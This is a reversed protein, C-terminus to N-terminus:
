ALGAGYAVSLGLFVGRAVVRGIGAISLGSPLHGAGLASPAPDIRDVAIAKSRSDLLQTEVETARPECGPSTPSNEPSPGPVIAGAGAAGFALYLFRITVPLVFSGGQRKIVPSTLGERMHFLEMPSFPDGDEGLARARLLDELEPAFREDEPSEDGLVRLVVDQDTGPLRGASRAAPQLSRDRLVEIAREIRPQDVGPLPVLEVRSSPEGWDPLIMDPTPRWYSASFSDLARAYATRLRQLDTSHLIFRYYTIERDAEAKDALAEDFRIPKQGGYGALPRATLSAGVHALQAEYRASLAQMRLWSREEDKLTLYVLASRRYVISWFESVEERTGLFAEARAVEKEAEALTSGEALRLSLTIDAPSSVLRGPHPALAKGFLVFLGYCLTTGGLLVAWPNRMVWRLLRRVWLLKPAGTAPIILTALCAAPAGVAFLKAPAGLFAGLPGGVLVVAVPLSCAALAVWVLVWPRQGPRRLVQFTLASAMTMMLAPLTTVDLSIGVAWTANVAAALALPLVFAQHLVWPSGHMVLQAISLLLIAAVLGMAGRRLVQRLPDAEDMLVEAEGYGHISLARNVARSFALPSADYERYLLLVQGPEGNVRAAFRPEERRLDKHAVSGLRLASEGQRVARQMPDWNEPIGSLVLGNRNGERWRGLRSEGVPQALERRIRGGYLAPATLRVELRRRGAVWVEQVEPLDQLAQVLAEPAEGPEGPLWVISSASGAGQQIPEVEITSAEPLKRRLSQLESELRAAKREANTGPEFRVRLEAGRNSVEGAHGRVQGLTRIASELPVVYRRTLEEVDTPNSVTLRAELEPFTWTPLYALEVRTAAVVGLIVVVLGMVWRTIRRQGVPEPRSM